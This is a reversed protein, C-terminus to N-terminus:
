EINTAKRFQELKELAKGSDIIEAAEKIGEEISVGKVIHIAAGANLLVVDRRVGKVGKFIELVIAANEEPTGGVLEEKSCRAFGFQEPKIEYRVYPKECDKYKDVDLEAVLTPASLSIEDLCDEGYVIMARKVGLNALVSAVPEILSDNYVGVLQYTNSAPNTLPGLINFVTPIGIDKRVPGVYKMATHYRQAFMFCLNTEDLVKANREPEVSIRVGLAELCDATGCKSSAARNGHKAVPIGAAATIISAATSINFTNSKDGGTGVIDIVAKDTEVKTAFKRMGKASATIEEITEGKIHLATLYAAAQAPTAEGGMIEDMVQSCEEMTLDNGNVLKSIAERIM